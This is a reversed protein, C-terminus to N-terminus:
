RTLHWLPLDNPEVDIPAARAFLRGDPLEFWTEGERVAVWLWWRGPEITRPILLSVRERIVEGAGYDDLPVGRGLPRRQEVLPLGDAGTPSTGTEDALVVTVTREAATREGLKWTYEVSM